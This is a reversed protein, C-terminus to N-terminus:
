QPPPLPPDAERARAAGRGGAPLPGPPAVPAQGGGGHGDGAGWRLRRGGPPKQGGAQGAQLVPAPALGHDGHFPVTVMVSPRRLSSSGGLIGSTRGTRGRRSMTIKGNM